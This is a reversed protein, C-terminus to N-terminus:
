RKAWQPGRRARKLGPKKREKMRSDRTLMGNKKLVRRHEPNASVIARALGHAFAHSQAHIGGGRINAYIYYQNETGTLQMPKFAQIVYYPNGFYKKAEIKNILNQQQGNFLRINAVATKRRGVSFVYKGYDKKRDQGDVQDIPAALINKEDQVHEKLTASQKAARPKRPSPAKKTPSKATTM